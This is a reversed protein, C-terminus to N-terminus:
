LAGEDFHASRLTGFMRGFRGEFQPSHQTSELGRVQGHSSAAISKM